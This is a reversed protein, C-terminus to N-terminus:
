KNSKDLKDVFNSIYLVVSHNRNVHPMVIITLTTKTLLLTVTYYESRKSSIINKIFAYLTMEQIIDYFIPPCTRQM